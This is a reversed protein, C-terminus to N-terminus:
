AFAVVQTYKRNQSVPRNLYHPSFIDIENNTNKEETKKEMMPRKDTMQSFFQLMPPMKEVM